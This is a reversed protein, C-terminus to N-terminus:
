PLWDGPNVGAGRGGSGLFPQDALSRSAAREIIEVDIGDRSTGRM